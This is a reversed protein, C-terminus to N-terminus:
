TGSHKRRQHQHLSILLAIDHEVAAWKADSPLDILIQDDRVRSHRAIVRQDDQFFISKNKDILATFVSGEDVSFSNLPLLQLAIVPQFKARPIRRICNEIRGM